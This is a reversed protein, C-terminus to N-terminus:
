DLWQGSEMIEFFKDELTQEQVDFRLVQIKNNFFLQILVPIKEKSMQIQLQNSQNSMIVAQEFQSVLVKALEVRSQDVELFVQVLDRSGIERVKDIYVLEGNRLVAIKDYMFQMEALLHSSIFVAVGEEHAIKKLYIRLEQIGAPDLGNTPEDLILLSPRHLIAQAIGLRQRMGLSYTSVKDHIRDTLNVRNVVENIRDQSVDSAMRAYHMLNQYGTLYSYFDPNEVIAGVHQIAKEFQHTISHGKIFIDGHSIKILGVMMRITTTKGSGNPGLFGFIEGEQIGFNLDRVIVRRGIKKTINKFQVVPQKNM